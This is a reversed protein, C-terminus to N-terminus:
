VTTNRLSGLRTTLHLDFNCSAIHWLPPWLGAKKHGTHMLWQLRTALVLLCLCCCISIAQQFTVVTICYYLLMTTHRYLLVTTCYWLLVTTCYYMLITTRYYQLVTTRYNPIVTIWCCLPVTTRYNPIVTIWCYQLVTTRYYLLSPSLPQPATRDNEVDYNNKNKSGYDSQTEGCLFLSQILRFVDRLDISSGLLFCSSFNLKYRLADFNTSNV